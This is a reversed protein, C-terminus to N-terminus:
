NQKARVKALCYKRTLRKDYVFYDYKQRELLCKWNAANNNRETNNYSYRNKVM